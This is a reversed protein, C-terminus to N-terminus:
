ARYSMMSILTIINYQDTHFFVHKTGTAQLIISEIVDDVISNMMDKSKIINSFSVHIWRSIIWGCLFISCVHM